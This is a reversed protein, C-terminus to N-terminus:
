KAGDPDIGSGSDTHAGGPAPPPSAPAGLLKEQVRALRDLLLDLPHLPRATREAQRPHPQAFAPSPTTLAALALVALTRRRPM